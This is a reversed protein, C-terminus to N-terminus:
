LYSEFLVGYNSYDKCGFDIDINHQKCYHQMIGVVVTRHCGQEVQCYCAMMVKKNEFSRVLEDLQETFNKTEAFHSLLKDVFTNEFWDLTFTGNKKKSITEWHLKEPPALFELNEIFKSSTAKRCITLNLDYDERSCDNIRGIEVM